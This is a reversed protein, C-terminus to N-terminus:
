DTIPTRGIPFDPYMSGEAWYPVLVAHLEPQPKNM